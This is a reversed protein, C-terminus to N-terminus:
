KGAPEPIEVEVVYERQITKLVPKEPTSEAAHSELVEEVVHGPVRPNLYETFIAFGENTRMRSKTEVCVYTEKAITRRALGVVQWSGTESSEMKLVLDPRDQATWFVNTTLLCGDAHLEFASLETKHCVISIGNLTLTERETTEPLKTPWRLGDQHEIEFHQTVVKGEVTQNRTFKSNAETIVYTLDPQVDPKVGPFGPASDANRMVVKTGTPWGEWRNAQLKTLADLLQAKGIEQPEDAASPIGLNVTLAFVFLLVCTLIRLHKM